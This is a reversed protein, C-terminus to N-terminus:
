QNLPAYRELFALAPLSMWDTRGGFSYVVRGEPDILFTVPLVAVPLTYQVDGRDDYNLAVDGLGRSNLFTTLSTISQATDVSVAVVDLNSGKYREKLQQLSPLETICYGCWTAWLNLLLYRGKYDALALPKEEPGLFTINEIPHPPDYYVHASMSDLFRKADGDAIPSKTGNVVLPSPNNQPTFPNDIKPIERTKIPPREADAVFVSTADAMLSEAKPSFYGAMVAGAFFSLCIPLIPFRKTM